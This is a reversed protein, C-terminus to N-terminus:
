HRRSSTVPGGPVQMEADPVDSAQPQQTWLSRLQGQLFTTLRQRYDTDFVELAEIQAQLAERRLALGGVADEYRLEAQVKLQEAHSRGGAVIRECEAHADALALEAKLRISAAKAEADRSSLEAAARAEVLLNDAEARIKDAYSQADRHIQEALALAETQIKQAHRNVAAVHDEATRQALTLVQLAKDPLVLTDEPAAHAAQTPVKAQTVTVASDTATASDVPSRYLMEKVRDVIQKDSVVKEMILLLARGATLGAVQNL